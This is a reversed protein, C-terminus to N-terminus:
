PNYLRELFQQNNGLVRIYDMAQERAKSRKAVLQEFQTRTVAGPKGERVLQVKYSADIYQGMAQYLAQTKPHIKGSLNRLQELSTKYDFAELGQILVEREAFIEANFPGSALFLQDLSTMFTAHRPLRNDAALLLYRSSLHHPALKLINLLEQRTESKRLVAGADGLKLQDQILAFRRIADALDPSRDVRGLEVADELTNLDFIQIRWLMSAGYLVALNVIDNRNEQPVAVIQCDANMAARVKEPVGGVGRVRWDVTIEGTVAFGEDYIVGDLMGLLGMAFATGASAGDKGSHIEGFSVSLSEKQWIPYRVQIARMAEICSNEMEAGVERTFHFPLLWAGQPPEVNIIVDMVTGALRGNPTRSVMLGKVKQQRLTFSKPQTDYGKRLGRKIVLRDDAAQAGYIWDWKVPGQTQQWLELLYLTDDNVPDLDAALGLFYGALKLDEANGTKVLGDAWALLDTSLEKKTILREPKRLLAGRKLKGNTLVAERNKPDLQLALGLMRAYLDLPASTTTAAQSQICLAMRSAAPEKLEIGAQMRVVQLVCIDSVPARYTIEALVLTPGFLVIVCAWTITSVM